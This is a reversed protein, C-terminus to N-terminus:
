KYGSLQSKDHDPERWEDSSTWTGGGSAWERRYKFLGVVNTVTVTCGNKCKELAMYGRRSRQTCDSIGYCYAIRMKSDAQNTSIKLSVNTAQAMDPTPPGNTIEAQVSLSGLTVATGSLNCLIVSVTDPQVVQMHGIVGSPLSAPWGGIVPDGPLAGRLFLDSSRTCAANAVEGVKVTSRSQLIQAASFSDISVILQSGTDITVIGTGAVIDLASLPARLDTCNSAWSGSTVMCSWLPISGQPFSVVQSPTVICNGSCSVGVLNHIIQLFGSTDVYVLMQGSGSGASLTVNAASTYLETTEGFRASCPAATTCETNIMVTTSSIQTLSFGLSITLKSPTWAGPSGSWSLVQGAAPAANSIPYRQIGTVTAAGSTGGLDGGVPIVISGPIWAGVASSYILTQGNIPASVGVPLCPTAIGSITVCASPDGTAGNLLGNADVVAVRNPAYSPGKVPRIGLDATLGIVASEPITAGGQPTGSDPDFRVSDPSGRNVDAIRLTYDVNPVDWKEFRIVRHGSIYVAVYYSDLTNPKIRHSFSGRSVEIFIPEGVAKGDKIGILKIVGAYPQLDDGLVDTEAIVVHTASEHPTALEPQAQANAAAGMLVVIFTIYRM